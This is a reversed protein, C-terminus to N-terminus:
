RNETIARVLQFYKDLKQPVRQRYITSQKKKIQRYYGRDIQLVIKRDITSEIQRYYQRDIQRYYQRDIQRYYQREIQLVIQRDITSDKQRYYERDIQLSDHRDKGPYINQTKKLCGGPKDLQIQLKRDMTYGENNKSVAILEIQRKERGIDM